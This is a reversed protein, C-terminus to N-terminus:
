KLMARLRKGSDESCARIDDLTKVQRILGAANSSVFADSPPTVATVQTLKGIVDTPRVLNDFVIVEEKVREEIAKWTPEYEPWDSEVCVCVLPPKGISTRYEALKEELAAFMRREEPNLARLVDKWKFVSYRVEREFETKMWNRRDYHTARFRAPRIKVSRPKYFSDKDM